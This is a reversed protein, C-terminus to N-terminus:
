DSARQLTANGTKRDVVLEVPLVIGNTSFRYTAYQGQIRESTIRAGPYRNTVLQTGGEAIGRVANTPIWTSDEKPARSCSCCLLFVLIVTNPWTTKLKPAFICALFFAALFVFGGTMVSSGAATLREITLPSIGGDPVFYILCAGLVLFFLGLLLLALRCFVVRSM